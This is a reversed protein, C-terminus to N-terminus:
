INKDLEIASVEYTRRRYYWRMVKNVSYGILALVLFYVLGFATFEPVSNTTFLGILTAGVGMSTVVTLNNVSNSTSKAQLDSFIKVASDVYKQTLVWIDKIYSLTDSLTEHKYGLVSEFVTLREDSNAVSERTHLYAGMQNIRTDIFDITKKYQDVKSKFGGVESGKMKGREIVAAIKEWIIRHMNLYRHLQGRFERLFIQEEIFRQVQEDTVGNQNIVYLKDGRYIGFQDNKVTFYRKQSFESFLNAVSEENAESVSVFYPYVTKINALEKPVPAGLSFIYSFAPSLKQEYYSTLKSIDAQLDHSHETALVILGDEYIRVTTGDETQLLVYELVDVTLKLQVINLQSRLRLLEEKDLDLPSDADRLFDYIEGLHLRTRQFWGGVHVRKIQM